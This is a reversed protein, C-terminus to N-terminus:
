QTRPGHSVAVRVRLEWRELLKVDIAICQIEQKTLLLLSLLHYICHHHLFLTSQICFRGRWVESQVYAGLNLPHPSSALLTDARFINGVSGM